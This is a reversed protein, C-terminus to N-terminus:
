VWGRRFIQTGVPGMVMDKVIMIKSRKAKELGNKLDFVMIQTKLLFLTTMMNHLVALDLILVLKMMMMM